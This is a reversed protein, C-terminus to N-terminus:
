ESSYGEFHHTIKCVPVCVQYCATKDGIQHRCASDCENYIGGLSECTSGPIFECEQYRNLWTGGASLCGLVHDPGTASVQPPISRTIKLDTIIGMDSLKVLQQLEHPDQKATWHATEQPVGEVTSCGFLAMSMGFVLTQCGATEFLM